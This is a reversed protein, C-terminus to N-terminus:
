VADRGLSSLSNKDYLHEDRDILDGLLLSKPLVWIACAAKWIKCAWYGPKLGRWLVGSLGQVLSCWVAGPHVLLSCYVAGYVAGNTVLSGDSEARTM